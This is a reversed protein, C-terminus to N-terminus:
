TTTARTAGQSNSALHSSPVTLLRSCLTRSIRLLQLLRFTAL